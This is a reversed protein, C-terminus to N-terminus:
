VALVAFRDRGTTDLPELKILGDNLRVMRVNTADYDGGFGWAYAVRMVQQLSFTECEELPHEEKPVTAEYPQFTGVSLGHMMGDNIRMIGTGEHVDFTLWTSLQAKVHHTVTADSASGFQLTLDLSDDGFPQSNSLICSTGPALITGDSMSFPVREVLLVSNDTAAVEIVNDHFWLRIGADKRKAHRVEKLAKMVNFATQGTVEFKM